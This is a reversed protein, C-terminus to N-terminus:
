NKKHLLNWIVSAINTFKETDDNDEDDDDEESDSYYIIENHVKYSINCNTIKQAVDPKSKIIYYFSVFKDNHKHMKACEEKDNEVRAEALKIDTFIGLYHTNKYVPVISLNEETSYVAFM